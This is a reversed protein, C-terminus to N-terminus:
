RQSTTEAACAVVVVVVVVGVFFSLVFPLLVVNWILNNLCIVAKLYVYTHSTHQTRPSPSCSGHWGCGVLKIAVIRSTWETKFITNIRIFFGLLWSSELVSQISARLEWEWAWDSMNSKKKWNIRRQIRTCYISQVPADHAHVFLTAVNWDGCTWIRRIDAFTRVDYRQM